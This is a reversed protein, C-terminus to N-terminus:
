SRSWRGLGRSGQGKTPCLMVHYLDSPGRLLAARSRLQGHGPRSQMAHQGGAGEEWLLRGWSGEGIFQGSVSRWRLTRERPPGEAAPESCSVKSRGAGRWRWGRAAGMAGRVSPAPLLTAVRAPCLTEQHFRGPRIAPSEWLTAPLGPGLAKAPLLQTLTLVLRGEGPYGSQPRGDSHCLVCLWGQSAEPPRSTNQFFLGPCKQCWANGRIQRFFKLWFVFFFAKSGNM